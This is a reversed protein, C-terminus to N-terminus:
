GDTYYYFKKIVCLDYEKSLKKDVWKGKNNIYYRKKNSPDLYSIEVKPKNNVKLIRWRWEKHGKDIKTSDPDTKADPPIISLIKQYDLPKDVSCHEYRDADYKKLFIDFTEENENSSM